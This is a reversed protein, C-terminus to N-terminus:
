GKLEKIEQKGDASLPWRFATERLWPPWLSSMTTM